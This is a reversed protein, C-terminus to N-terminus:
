AGSQGKADDLKTFDLEPNHVVPAPPRDPDVRAEALPNRRVARTADDAVHRAWWRAFNYTALALALAAVLWWPPGDTARFRPPLVFERLPAAVCVALWMLMWTLNYNRGFM